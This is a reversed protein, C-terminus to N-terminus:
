DGMLRLGRENAYKRLADWQRYFEYQWYKRCQMEDSLKERWYALAVPRRQVLDEDWDTWSKNADLANKLAIFLAHDDLWTAQEQCFNQFAHKDTSSAKDNFVRYAKALLPLKWDNVREYEVTDLPFEPSSEIDRAELLGDRVLRELSIFLPNGAFASFLQYPSDGYGTPGLPLM